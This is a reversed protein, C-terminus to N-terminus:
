NNILITGAPPPAHLGLRPRLRHDQLRTLRTSQSHPALGLRTAFESRLGLQDGLAFQLVTATQGTPGIPAPNMGVPSLNRSKRRFSRGLRGELTKLLDIPFPACPPAGTM